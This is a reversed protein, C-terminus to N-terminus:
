DAENSRTILQGAATKRALLNERLPEKNVYQIAKVSFYDQFEIYDVLWDFIDSL